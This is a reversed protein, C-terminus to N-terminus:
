PKETSYQGQHSCMHITSALRNSRSHEIGQELQTGNQSQSDRLGQDNYSYAIPPAGPLTIILLRDRPGYSMNTTGTSDTKQTQNGNNDYQYTILEATIADQVSELQDRSNYSYTKDNLTTQNNDTVLETIRNANGNLSYSISRNTEQFQIM